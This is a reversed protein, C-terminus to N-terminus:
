WIFREPDADFIDLNNKSMNYWLWKQKAGLLKPVRGALIKTMGLHNHIIAHVWRRSICLETVIYRETLGQDTLLMDHIKEIIEQTAATASRRHCPCDKLSDRSWKLDAAWKKVKTFLPANDQITAVMDMYIEMPTLDKIHFYQIVARHGIKDM